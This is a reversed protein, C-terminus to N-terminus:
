RAAQVAEASSSHSAVVLRHADAIKSQIKRVYRATDATNYGGARFADAWQAESLRSLLACTWRLDDVTVSKVLAGDLGSYDFEAFEGDIGRVFGQREFHELNNKTGQMQRMFPIWTLPRPQRAEGLSAGLDRVVYQRGTGGNDDVVAYVKNNPTKLDWNNLLINVTVLAAFPRSGIFPNDYWSWEGVVERGEFEARFRAPSLERKDGDAFQWQEIYYVPPQHFGLAWLIRSVTVEPQAEVGLKVAWLRGQADRVDYGKNTGTTKDAVFTFTTSQPRLQEGGIGHFLNRSELDAPESWLQSVATPSPQDLPRNLTPACSAAFVLTALMAAIAPPYRRQQQTM